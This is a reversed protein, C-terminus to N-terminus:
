NKQHSTFHNCLQSFVLWNAQSHSKRAKAWAPDREKQTSPFVLSQEPRSFQANRNIIETFVDHFDKWDLKLDKILAVKNWDFDWMEHLFAQECFYKLDSVNLFLKHHQNQSSLKDSQLQLM